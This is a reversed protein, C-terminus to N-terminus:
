CSISSFKKPKIIVAPQTRNNVIELYTPRIAPKLTEKTLKSLDFKFSALQNKISARAEDLKKTLLENIGNSYLILRQNVCIDCNWSLGPMNDFPSVIDISKYVECSRNKASKVFFAKHQGQQFLYPVYKVSHCKLKNYGNDLYRPAGVTWTSKAKVRTSKLM